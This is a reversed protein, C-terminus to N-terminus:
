TTLLVRTIQTTKSSGALAVATNEEDSEILALRAGHAQCRSSAAEWSLREYDPVYCSSGLCSTYSAGSVRLVLQRSMVHVVCRFCTTSCGALTFCTLVRGTDVRAMEFCSQPRHPQTSCGFNRVLHATFNADFPLAM